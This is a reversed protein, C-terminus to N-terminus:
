SKLGCECRTSCMQPFKCETVQKRYGADYLREILIRKSQDSIGLTYTDDMAAQVAKDREEAAIQEPTRIPRFEPHDGMRQTKSIGAFM